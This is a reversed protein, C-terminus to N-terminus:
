QDQNLSTLQTRMLSVTEGGEEGVVCGIPQM